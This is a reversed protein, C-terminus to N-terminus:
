ILRCNAAIWIWAFGVWHWILCLGIKQISQCFLCIATGSHFNWGAYTEAKIDSMIAQVASPKEPFVEKGLTITFLIIKAQAGPMYTVVMLCGHASVNRM